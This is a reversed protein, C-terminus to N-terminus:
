LTSLQERHRSIGAEVFTVKEDVSRRFLAENVSVTARPAERHHLHYVVAGFKVFRLELGANILRAALDNDEKGWGTFAENYGNVRWLDDKWFAMNCGLVYHMNKKGRQLRYNLAALLPLRVANYKKKLHPHGPGLKPVAAAALVQHTYAEDLLSRAGSVFAGRRAFRLHDHVFRPHLVLDGDIQVLYDGEAAAFAKNRIRALQFGEDPQWIHRLPVPSRRQFDAVLAGTEAGSGDDAIIIEDPLVVQELVSQLCLRLASPWNYTAIILSCTPKSM